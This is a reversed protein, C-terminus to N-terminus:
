NCLAAKNLMSAPNGQDVFIIKLRKISQNSITKRWIPLIEAMCMCMFRMLKSTGSRNKVGHQIKVHIPTDLNINIKIIQKNLFVCLIGTQQCWHRCCVSRLLFRVLLVAVRYLGLELPLSTMSTPFLCLHYAYLLYLINSFLCFHIYKFM